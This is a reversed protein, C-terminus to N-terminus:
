SFHEFGQGKIAINNSNLLCQVRSIHNTSIRDASVHNEADAEIVGVTTVCQALKPYAAQWRKFQQENITFCLQYDDGGFLARNFAEQNSNDSSHYIDSPQYIALQELHITARVASAKCIHNLDAFFGDSVDIAASAFERLSLGLEIQAQPSCFWQYAETAMEDAYYDHLGQAGMGLMGSHCILDGVQAGQRQLAKDTPVTGICTIAISLGGRTTDGGLLSIGGVDDSASRLGKAFQELWNIDVEPLALQLQYGVPEAGMAAMDSLNCMLARYATDFASFGKPFHVNENLTDSAIVFQSGESCNLIAADDGIGLNVWSSTQSLPEFFRRIIEFENM